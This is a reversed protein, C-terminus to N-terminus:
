FAEGEFALVDSFPPPLPEAEAARPQVDEFPDVQVKSQLIAAKNDLLKIATWTDHFVDIGFHCLLVAHAGNSVLASMNLSDTSSRSATLEYAASSVCFSYAHLNAHRWLLSKRLM